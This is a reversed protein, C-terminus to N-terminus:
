EFRLAEIPDLSAARWAPYLGFGIGIGSCVALGAIAWGWPFFVNAQLFAALADGGLVGLLIGVLGGLESLFVAEVLFQRLIDAKKAGISKRIGIEKTRETVSVLMINMIGVGAAVLAISSIVFAGVRVADAVSAFAAILSDNSFIEFDNDAGPPLSRAMRMAGLAINFTRDYTEQSTAQTAINVTRHVHGYDEFYRTIPVLVLNDDSAGFASGKGELTGIVVFNKESVKITKGIASEVPFIRTRIDRGIIVVNRALAVDAENFNRGEEIKYNNSIIFYQNTGCIQINPNTRLRGYTIRKGEDFVKLSIVASTGEMLHVYRMAQEYSVDRRNAYKAKAAPGGQGLPSTKAFQFINSGLFSLGTEISGQLAGTATMVSIVSFVGITIGLMTLGSRLKNASLASIALALIEKFPM